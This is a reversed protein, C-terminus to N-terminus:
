PNLKRLAKRYNNKKIVDFHMLTVTHCTIKKKLEFYHGKQLIYVCLRIHSFAVCIGQQFGYVSTM